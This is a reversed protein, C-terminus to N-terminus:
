TCSLTKGIVSIVSDPVGVAAALEFAFNSVPSFFLSARLIHM